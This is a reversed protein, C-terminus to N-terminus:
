ADANQELQWLVQWYSQKREHTGESNVDPEVDERGVNEDARRHENHSSEAWIFPLIGMWADCLSVHHFVLEAKAIPLIKLCGLVTPDAIM